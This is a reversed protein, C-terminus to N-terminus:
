ALESKLSKAASFAASPNGAALAAGLQVLGTVVRLTKQIGELHGIAEKGERTAATIEDLEKALGAFTDIISQSNIESARERMKRAAETLADFEAESLEPTSDRYARVKKSAELYHDALENIM